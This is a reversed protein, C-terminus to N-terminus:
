VLRMAPVCRDTALLEDIFDEHQQFLLVAPFNFLFGLLDILFTIM